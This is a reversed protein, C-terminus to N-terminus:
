SQTMKIGLEVAAKKDRNEMDLMLKQIDEGHTLGMETALACQKELTSNFHGPNFDQYNNNPTLIPATSTQGENLSIPSELFPKLKVQAQGKSGMCVKRRVYFRTAADPNPGQPRLGLEEKEKQFCVESQGLPIDGRDELQNPPAPLIAINPSQMEQHSESAPAVAVSFEESTCSQQGAKTGCHRSGPKDVLFTAERNVGQVVANLVNGKLLTQGNVSVNPEADEVTMLNYLIPRDPQPQDVDDISDFSRDLCRRGHTQTQRDKSTLLSQPQDGFTSCGGDGDDSCGDSFACTSDDGLTDARATAPSNPETSFPSPPFWTAPQNLRTTRGIGSIDEVVHLLNEAGDILVKLDTQIGPKLKTRILIKAVDIRRRHEVMEHVEVMDGIEAVVQGMYEPEWANPPLGWLLVWALRHTPRIEKSWKQLDLLPTSGSRSEESILQSAKSEQLNHLIVWDDGWYCPIVEPDFVWRLEEEVREFMGRNKLRGVWAKQLHEQQERNTNIAVPRTVHKPEFVSKKSALLFLPWQVLPLDGSNKPMLLLEMEFNTVYDEERLNRIIENWFPAFRAADVKNKEVVQVSSQHSSRNPLPVHLTDMFARPFQEFLRHLAELSRIEGLRDRAGLLFGYVASVLTYFVYIDLLYIAVVPAWVSVVTLANHNNKSVFDHWSYNINDEKIIARTPDVLPRIQLFYAFAFKASLIVLWFLMYKIFDSSREYMGRGVYHREQRLWKVFSILPFRDCQNTLRHCAPIRMLFSIFFQVGAYIGIVIVYLRFVVSNGNINSEEQLAKVYLFTIFVSALSFWLFRLFIRSVASRRTTSYAGYMMFIDLVSEFFKMVVFTPGLSLVERLTKANLKGNNFALITLGQFMMFLFIWLRHFSHYLHFFTRHEVFSTKGQHRSSGPILMKETTDLENLKKKKLLLILKIKKM